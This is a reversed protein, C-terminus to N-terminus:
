RGGDPRRHGPGSRASRPLPRHMRGDEDTAASFDTKKALIDCFLQKESLNEKDKPIYLLRTYSFDQGVPM